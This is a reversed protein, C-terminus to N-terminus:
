ASPYQDIITEHSSIWQRVDDLSSFDVKGTSFNEKVWQLSSALDDGAVYDRPCGEGYGMHERRKAQIWISEGENRTAAAHRITTKLTLRLPEAKIQIIQKTM